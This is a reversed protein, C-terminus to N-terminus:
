EDGRRGDRLEGVGVLQHRRERPPWANPVGDEDRVELAQGARLGRAGLRDGDEGRRRVREGGSVDPHRHVLGEGGEGRDERARALQPPPAAAVHRGSEAARIGAGDRGLPGDVDRRSQEPEAELLHAEAVRDADPDRRLDPRDDGAGLVGADGQVLDREVEM